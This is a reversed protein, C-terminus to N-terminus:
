EEVICHELAYDLFIEILENKSHGTRVSIDQIKIALDEKIHITFTKSKSKKKTIILKDSM